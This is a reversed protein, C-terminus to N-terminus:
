GCAANFGGKKRVRCSVQRESIGLNHDDNGTCMHLYASMEGEVAREEASVGCM